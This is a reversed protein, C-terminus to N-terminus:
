SRCCTKSSGHYHTNILLKPHDGGVLKIAASIKETLPAFQDDILFTGDKGIFLGINGGKRTIMHIQDTVPVPTVKVEEDTYGTTALIMFGLVVVSFISVIKGTM